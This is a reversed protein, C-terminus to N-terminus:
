SPLPASRELWARRGDSWRALVRECAAQRGDATVVRVPARQGGVADLASPRAGDPVASVHTWADAGWPLVGWAHRRSGSGDIELHEQGVIVEGHVRCATEYGRVAAGHGLDYGVPPGEDEWELDFGLPTPEGLGRGLAEGPDDLAVGFAELGVSWHDLPTECVHDAWLGEARLELSSRRRPLPVDLDVVSVLPRGDGVVAAWYWARKEGPRLAVRM